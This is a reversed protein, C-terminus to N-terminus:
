RWINRDSKELLLGMHYATLSPLPDPVGTVRLADSLRSWSPLTLQPAWGQESPWPHPVAALLGWGTVWM